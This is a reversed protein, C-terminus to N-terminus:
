EEFDDNTEDSDSDYDDVEEPIDYEEDDQPLSALYDEDERYDADPDPGGKKAPGNGKKKKFFMFGGVGLLAVVIVIAVAPSSKKAGDEATKSSDKKKGFSFLGGDESAEEGETDDTIEPVEEGAKESEYAEVAEDDMLALLDAEDVKNLFHVTETGKDDRDIIIYFYHGSKTLVTIFQKGGPETSGYDDVLEMNGDPTLPGFEESIFEETGAETGETGFAGTNEPNQGTPDAESIDASTEAVTTDVGILEAGSNETEKGDIVEETIEEKAEDAQCYKYEIKCVECEENVHGKKCKEECTCILEDGPEAAKASVPTAGILFAASLIGAATLKIIMNKMM